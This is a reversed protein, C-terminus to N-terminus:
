SFPQSLNFIQTLKSLPATNVHSYVRFNYIFFLTEQDVSLTNDFRGIKLPAENLAPKKIAKKKLYTM